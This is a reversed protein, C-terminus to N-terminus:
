TLVGAENEEHLWALVSHHIHQVFCCQGELGLLLRFGHPLETLQWEARNQSHGHELFQRIAQILRQCLRTVSLPQRSEFLNATGFTSRKTAGMGSSRM